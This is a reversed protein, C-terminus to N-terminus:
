ANAKERQILGWLEDKLAVREKRMQYEYLSDAPEVNTEARHIARNLQHYEDYLKAFHPDGVKLNHIIQAQEPFEAVLEHPTHTM